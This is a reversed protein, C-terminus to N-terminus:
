FTHLGPVLLLLLLIALLVLLMVLLGCLLWTREGPLWCHASCRCNHQRPRHRHAAQWCAGKSGVADSWGKINCGAARAAMCCCYMNIIVWRQPYCCAAEGM